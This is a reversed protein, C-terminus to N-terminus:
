IGLAKRKADIAESANLICDYLSKGTRIFVQVSKRTCRVSWMGKQNTITIIADLKECFEDINKEAKNLDTLKVKIKSM